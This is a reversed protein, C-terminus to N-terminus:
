ICNPRLVYSQFVMFDEEMNGNLLRHPSIYIALMRRALFPRLGEKSLTFLWNGGEIDIMPSEPDNMFCIGEQEDIWYMERGGDTIEKKLLYYVKNTNETIPGDYSLQYYSPTVLLYIPSGEEHTVVDYSEGKWSGQGWELGKLQGM